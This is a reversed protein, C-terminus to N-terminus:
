STAEKASYEVGSELIEKRGTVGLKRYIQVTEQRILSESFGLDVAVEANTEGRRIGALVEWQRPTLSYNGAPSKQMTAQGLGEFSRVQTFEIALISGIILLFEERERTLEIRRSCFTLISGVGSVPWSISSEFGQPFLEKSHDPGPFLFEDMSGCEGVTSTRLYRSAPSDESILRDPVVTFEQTNYGYESPSHLIGDPRVVNLLVAFAAFEYLTDLAVFKMIEDLSPKGSRLFDLLNKVRGLNHM